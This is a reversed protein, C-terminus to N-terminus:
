QANVQDLSPAPPQSTSELLATGERPAIQLDVMQDGGGVLM